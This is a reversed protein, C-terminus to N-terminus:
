TDLELIADTGFPIGGAAAMRGALALKSANSLNTGLFLGNSLKLSRRASREPQRPYVDEARVAINNQIGTRASALIENRKDPVAALLAEVLAAYAAVGTVAEGVQDRVRWRAGSTTPKRPPVPGQVPRTAASRAMATVNTAHHGPLGRLFAEADSLGPRYGSLAEARDLLLDLLLGDPETLLESWARPLAQSAERRSRADRYDHRAAEIAAGSALRERLLYRTLRQVSEGVDREDLVLQYVRRDDYSGQEAPLYFDWERGDTLIALPVGERFAYEFLQRDADASRGVNKVEVFAVPPRPACRLAYDVRGRGTAHEPLVQEPDSDDWGLARLIPVVISTSVARENPYVGRALGDRIRHLLQEM